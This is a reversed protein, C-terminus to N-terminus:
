CAAHMPREFGQCNPRDWSRDASQIQAIQPLAGSAAAQVDARGGVGWGGRAVPVHVARVKDDKPKDAGGSSAASGGAVRCPPVVQRLRM